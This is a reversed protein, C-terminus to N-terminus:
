LPITWRTEGTPDTLARTVRRREDGVRVAIDYAGLDARTRYVGADDTRGAEDTHWEDFVLSVYADYGPKPTWDSYFLPADDRWHQDDWYGWLRFGTAAPHSYLVKLFRYLYAGAREESDFGPTDFESVALDVDGLGAFRELRRWQETPSIAEDAGLTHAQFGVEDLPAGGDLLFAVLTAYAERHRPRDLSLVDYENVSLTANPAVDGAHAFWERLVPSTASPADSLADTLAHHGIPENLFVWQTVGHDAVYHGLLTEIHERVLERVRADDGADVAEWVAAPVVAADRNQWVVPAGAVTLGRERLFAVVDDAREHTGPQTWQRWKYANEFVVENFLAGVYRRYPHDEPVAFHRGVNYATSFDFDHSRLTLDVRADPVPAGDREVAVALDARRHADIRADAAREWAPREGETVDDPTPTESDDRSRSCGALASAGLAALLARRDYDM